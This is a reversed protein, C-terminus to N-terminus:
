PNQQRPAECKEPNHRAQCSTSVESFSSELVRDQIDEVSKNGNRYRDHDETRMPRAQWKQREGRRLSKKGKSDTHTRTNEDKHQTQVKLPKGWEPSCM